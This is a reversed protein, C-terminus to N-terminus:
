QVQQQVGVHKQLPNAQTSPQMTHSDFVTGLTQM